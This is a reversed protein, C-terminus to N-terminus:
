SAPGGARIALVELYEADVKTVNAGAYNHSAWLSTLEDRLKQQGVSDLSAFARHMPGYYERFFDM